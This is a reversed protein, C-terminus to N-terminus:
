RNAGKERQELMADAIEYALRALRRPEFQNLRFDAEAIASLAFQDRLETISEKGTPPAVAPTAALMDLKAEIAELKGIIQCVNCNEDAYISGPTPQHRICFQM